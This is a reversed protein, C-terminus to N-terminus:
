RAPELARLREVQADNIPWHLLAAVVGLAIGAWWVPLYSGTTDFLYGGLWVGIFSGIQHNLFVIGFLTAMYRTGFIQAVLGSTLPVTGLWLIGIVASFLLAGATSPPALIFLLIAVSRLLYLWALLHKKRWRQGLMGAGLSGIINFFGITALAWAGLEPALGIDTLYAPLHVGIFSVQFGCVFFGSTLLIFGRHRMAENLAGRLTQVADGTRRVELGAGQDPRGRLAGALAVMSLAVVGLFLFAASWGYDTILSQSAPVLVLQGASGAGTVIGLALSRVEPRTMRGVVGLVVALGTGAQAAGIIVGAGLHFMGPSTSQAIIVLGLAYLVGGGAVVRGAGWRDALASAVPTFVGWLLNQLAIGFAFVERGWGLDLSMPKLFLGFAARSGLMVFVIASGALIIMIPIKLPSRTSQTM